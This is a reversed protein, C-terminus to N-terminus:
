KNILQVIPFGPYVIKVLHDFDSPDDQNSASLSIYCWWKSIVTLFSYSLDLSLSWVFGFQSMRLQGTGKFFM